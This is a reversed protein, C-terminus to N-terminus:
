LYSISLSYRTAILPKKIIVKNDGIAVNQLFCRKEPTKSTNQSSFPQFCTVIRLPDKNRLCEM